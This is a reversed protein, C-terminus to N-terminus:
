NAAEVLPNGKADILPNDNEDLQVKIAEKRNPEDAYNLKIKKAGEIATSVTTKLM